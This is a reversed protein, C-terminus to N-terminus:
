FVLDVGHISKPKCLNEIRFFNIRNELLFFQFIPTKQFFPQSIQSDSAVLNGLLQVKRMKKTSHALARDQFSTEFTTLSRSVELYSIQTNDMLQWESKKWSIIDGEM